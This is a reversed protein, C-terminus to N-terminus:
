LWTKLSELYAERTKADTALALAEAASRRARTSQGAAGQAIALNHWAASSEPHRTTAESLYKASARFDQAAYRTNGLGILAGLSAPWKKLINKYVLEAEPTKGAQELGAAAASQALDDASASLETSPLIVLGWYKGLAWSSEFKKLNSKKFADPGSHLTIERTDLDYGLVVAYHWKPYWSFAVNQFVLVPHGASIEQLLATLGYVPVALMGNRRSAGILDAQLTGAKGPTFTQTGLADVGIPNGAWNMTMALSAPGCFDKSQQVFPVDKVIAHRPLTGSNEILAESQRPATACASMLLLFGLSLLKM